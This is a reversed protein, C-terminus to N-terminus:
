RCSDSRSCGRCAALPVLSRVVSAQWSLWPVQRHPSCTPFTRRSIRPRVERRQPDSLFLAIVDVLPARERVMGTDDTSIPAFSLAYAFSATELVQIAEVPRNM